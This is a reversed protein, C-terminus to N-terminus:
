AGTPDRRRRMRWLGWASIITWSGEMLIFGYQRADLAAVFLCFGGILNLSQYTRTESSLRRFQHAAYAILIVIAGALSVLQYIM